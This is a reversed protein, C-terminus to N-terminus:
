NPPVVALFSLRSLLEPQFLQKLECSSRSTLRSTKEKETLWIKTRNTQTKWVAASIFVPVPVERFRLWKKRPSFKVARPSVQESWFQLCETASYQKFFQPCENEKVRFLTKSYKHDDQAFGQTKIQTNKVTNPWYCEIFLTSKIYSNFVSVKLIPKCLGHVIHTGSFYWPQNLCTATSCDFYSM